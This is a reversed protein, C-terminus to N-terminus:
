FVASQERLVKNVDVTSDDTGVLPVLDDSCWGILVDVPKGRDCRAVAKACGLTSFDYAPVYVPINTQRFPIRIPSPLQPFAPHLKLDPCYKEGHRIHQLFRSHM